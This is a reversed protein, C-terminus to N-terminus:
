LQYQLWHCQKQIMGLIKLHKSVTTHDVELSEVLESLTQCSNEYLLAELEDNEFERPICFCEKDKLYYILAIFNGASEDNCTLLIICQIEVKSITSKYLCM